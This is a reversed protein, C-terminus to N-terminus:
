TRGGLRTTVHQAIHESFHGPYEEELRDLLPMWAATENGAHNAILSELTPSAPQVEIPAHATKHVLWRGAGDRYLKANDYVGSPLKHTLSVMAGRQGHAAKTHGVLLSHTPYESHSPHFWEQTVTHAGDHTVERHWVDRQSLSM